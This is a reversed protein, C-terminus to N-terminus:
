TNALKHHLSYRPDLFRNGIAMSPKNIQPAHFQQPRQTPYDVVNLVKVAKFSPYIGSKSNNVSQEKLTARSYGNWLNGEHFIISGNTLSLEDPNQASHTQTVIRREPVQGEFYYDLDISRFRNFADPIVSNMVEYALRCVESSFACVLFDSRALYHVNTLVANLAVVNCQNEQVTFLSFNGDGLISYDPYKEQIEEFLDVDNTALYIAKEMVPYSLNLRSYYDEVESMYDEVPRYIGTHDFRTPRHIHVGVVPNFFETENAFTNLAKQVSPQYKMLYHLFQATWWVEPNSHVKILRSALDKPITGPLFDQRGSYASLPMLDITNAQPSDKGCTGSIPLFMSEWRRMGHHEDGEKVILTRGHGFAIMLCYTLHHLVCAYCCTKILTCTFKEARFCDTPNQLREIRQQVLNALDNLEHWRWSDHGDFSSISSLDKLISRKYELGLSLLNNFDDNLEPVKKKKEKIVKKVQSSIFWWFDQFDIYLKRRLTEYELSPVFNFRPMLPPVIKAQFIGTPQNTVRYLPVLNPPTPRVLRKRSRWPPYGFYCKEFLTKLEANKKELFEVKDSTKVLSKLTLLQFQADRNLIYVACFLSVFWFVVAFCVGRNWVINRATLMVTTAIM